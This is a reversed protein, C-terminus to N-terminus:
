YESEIRFKNVQYKLTYWDLLTQSDWGFTHFLDMFCGWIRELRPILLYVDVLYQSRRWERSKLLNCFLGLRYVIQTACNEVNPEAGHFQRDEPM